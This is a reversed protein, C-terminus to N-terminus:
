RTSITRSNEWQAPPQHWCRDFFRSSTRLLEFTRRSRSTNLMPISELDKEVYADNMIKWYLSCRPRVFELENAVLVCVANGESYSTAGYFTGCSHQSNKPSRRNDNGDNLSEAILINHSGSSSITRTSCFITLFSESGGARRAGSRGTLRHRRSWRRTELTQVWREERSLCCTSKM